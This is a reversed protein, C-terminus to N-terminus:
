QNADPRRWIEENPAGTITPDEVDVVDRSLLSGRSLEDLPINIIGDSTPTCNGLEGIVCSNVRYLARYPSAVLNGLLFIANADAAAPGTIPTTTGPKVFVGFLDIAPPFPGYSGLTLTRTVYYGSGNSTRLGTTNQQVILSGAAMTVDGAALMVAKSMNVDTPPVPRSPDIQKIQAVNTVAANLTVFTQSGLLIDNTAYLAATDFTQPSTSYVGAASVSTFGISGNNATGGGDNIVDIQSPTWAVQVPDGITLHVTNDTAPAFQGAVGVLNGTYLNLKNVPGNVTAGGVNINGKTEFLSVTPALLTSAMVWSGAAPKADALLLGAPDSLLVGVATGATLTAPTKPGYGGNAYSAADIFISQAGLTFLGDLV